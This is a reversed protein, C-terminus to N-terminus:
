NPPPKLRSRPPVERPAAARSTHADRGAFAKQYPALAGLMAAKSYVFLPTGHAQALSALSVDEVWLQHDRVTFFDPLETTM